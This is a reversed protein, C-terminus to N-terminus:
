RFSSACSIAFVLGNIITIPTSNASAIFNEDINAVDEIMAHDSQWVTKANQSSLYIYIKM